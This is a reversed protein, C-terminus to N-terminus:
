PDASNRRISIQISDHKTLKELFGPHKKKFEEITGIHLTDQNKSQMEETYSDLQDQPLRFIAHRTYYNFFINRKKDIDMYNSLIIRKGDKFVKFNKSPMDIISDYIYHLRRCVITNYTNNSITLKGPISM